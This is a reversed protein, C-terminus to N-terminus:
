CQLSGCGGVQLAMRLLQEYRRRLRQLRRPQFMMVAALDRVGGGQQAGGGAAAAAGGPGLSRNSSGLSSGSATSAADEDDGDDYYLLDSPLLGACDFLEGLDVGLYEVFGQLCPFALCMWVLLTSVPWGHQM